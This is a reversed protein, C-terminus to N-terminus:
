FMRELLGGVIFGVCFAAIIADIRSAAAAIARDSTSQPLWRAARGHNFDPTFPRYGSARLCSVSRDFNTM